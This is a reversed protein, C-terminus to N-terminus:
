NKIIKVASQLNDAYITIIYVGKPYPTLDILDSQNGSNKKLKNEYVTQGLCNSMVTHVSAADHLFYQLTVVSSAPNPFAKLVNRFGFGKTPLNCANGIATPIGHTVFTGDGLQGYTNDGMGM